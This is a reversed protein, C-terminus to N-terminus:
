RATLEPMAISVGKSIDFNAERVEMYTFCSLCTTERELEM